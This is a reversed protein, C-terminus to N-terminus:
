VLRALKNLLLNGDLNGDVWVHWIYVFITLACRERKICFGAIHNVCERLHEHWYNLDALNFEDDYRFAFCSYYKQM